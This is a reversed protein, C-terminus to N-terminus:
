PAGIRITQKLITLTSSADSFNRLRCSIGTGAPIYATSNMRISKRVADILTEETALLEQPVEDFFVEMEIEDNNNDTVPLINAQVFIGYYGAHTNTLYGTAMNGTFGNTLIRTFTTLNTYDNTSGSLALNYSTASGLYGFAGLPSMGAAINTTLPAWNTSNYNTPTAVWVLNTFVTPGNFFNTSTGYVTLDNTINVNGIGFNHNTALYNIAASTPTGLAFASATTLGRFTPSTTVFSGVLTTAQANGVVDLPASPNVKGIGVWGNTVIMTPATANTGTWVEMIANTGSRPKVVWNTSVSVDGGSLTLGVNTSPWSVIDIAPSTGPSTGAARIVGAYLASSINSATITGAVHLKSQPLNTGIGVNGTNLIVIRSTPTYGTGPTLSSDGDISFYTTTNFMRYASTHKPILSSGNWECDFGIQQNGAGYTLLSLSGSENATVKVQPAIPAAGSNIYLLKTPATTGIGVNNNTITIAAVNTSGWGQIDIAPVTGSSTNQARIVGQYLSNTLVNTITLSSVIANGAVHLKAAPNTTGIGVNGMVTAGGSVYNSGAAVTNTVLLGPFNTGTSGTGSATGHITYSTPNNTVVVINTGAAISQVVNTLGAGNGSFAGSLAVGSQGNTLISLNTIGFHATNTTFQQRLVPPAQSFACVALLWVAVAVSFRNITNM